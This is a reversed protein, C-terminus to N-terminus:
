YQIYQRVIGFLYFFVIFSTLFPSYTKELNLHFYTIGTILLFNIFFSVWVLLEAKFFLFLPVSTCLYIFTLITKLKM